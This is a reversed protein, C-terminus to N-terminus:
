FVKAYAENIANLQLDNLDPISGSWTNLLEPPLGFAKLSALDATAPQRVCDPFRQTYLPGPMLVPWLPAGDLRGRLTPTQAHGMQAADAEVHRTVYEIVQYLNVQDGQRVEPAGQLAEMLRFTLM